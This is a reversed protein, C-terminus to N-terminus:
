YFKKNESAFRLLSLTGHLKLKSAINSRHNRVTHVSICLEESIQQSTKMDALARLVNKEAPTLLEFLPNSQSSKGRNRRLLYEDLAPSIYFKSNIVSVICNLIDTIATDKLVYGMAGIDIANNFFQEEKYMTLFIVAVPLNLREIRRAVEFGDMSPMEIDLIAIRPLLKQIKQLADKGNGAEDVVDVDDHIELVDRLGKRFLPHDDAILITIKNEM